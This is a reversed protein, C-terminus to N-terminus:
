CYLIFSKYFFLVSYLHSPVNKMWVTYGSVHRAHKTLDHTISNGFRHVHSFFVCNAETTAKASELIHGFSSPFDRWQLSDKDCTRLRRWTYLLFMRNVSCFFYGTSSGLSWGRRFFLPSSNTRIACCHNLRPQGSDGCGIRSQWYGQINSWWLKGELLKLSPSVM